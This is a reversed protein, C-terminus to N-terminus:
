GAVFGALRMARRAEPNLMFTRWVFGSRLNEAMLLTIGEDIGIVDPNYWGTAPNFADVFGYRRWARKGFRQRMNRLCRLSEGPLFPLSGAAACPVLTGDLPGQRPPGGWGVYGRVSDSSTIGWLEEGFQPFERHLDICFQRHARTATVSNEFYDLFEDHVGRFDFWAHSFQHIFLPAEVSVYRYGGYEVEPRSWARWSNPSLAHQDAGIALLYLLMHETYANWSSDLFGSEPKWGMRLIASGDAMWQWDVRDYLAKALSRIEPDAFYGRCLLVGALLLATDISSLECKWLREGTRWNVFHFFFGHEQPLSSWLYKLTRLARDHAQEPSLWGRQAAICLATLGFGTAAISAIEREDNGDARTRDKVLGTQPHACEDFFRFTTRELGELFQEDARSIREQRGAQLGPRCGLIGAASLVGLCRLLERRRLQRGNWRNM